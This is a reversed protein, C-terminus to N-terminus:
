REQRGETRPGPLRQEGLHGASRGSLHGFFCEPLNVPSFRISVGTHIYMYIYIYHLTIYRLSMFYLTIYHLAIYHLTIYHLTFYHLTIYTHICAHM